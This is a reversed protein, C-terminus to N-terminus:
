SDLAAYLFPASASALVLVAATAPSAAVLLLIPVLLMPAAVPWPLGSLLAVAARQWGAKRGLSRALARDEIWLFFAYTQVFLTVILVLPALVFGILVLWRSASAAVVVTAAACAASLLVFVLLVAIVLPLRKMVHPRFTKGERYRRALDMAGRVMSSLANM